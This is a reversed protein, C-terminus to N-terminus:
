REREPLQLIFANRLSGWDYGGEQIEIKPEHSASVVSSNSHYHPHCLHCKSSLHCHWTAAADEGIPGSTRGRKPKRSCM